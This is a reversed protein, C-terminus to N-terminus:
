WSTPMQMPIYKSESRYLLMTTVQQEPLLDMMLPEPKEQLESFSM